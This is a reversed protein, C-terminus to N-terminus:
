IWLLILVVLVLMAHNISVKSTNPRPVGGLVLVKRQHVTKMHWGAYPTENRLAVM